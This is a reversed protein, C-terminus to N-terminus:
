EDMLYGFDKLVEKAEESFLFDYFGQVEMENDRERKILVIGQSILTYHEPDMAVWMGKNRMAQSMVTSMATFGIQAAKSTIFQNTQAISEGYVLKDKLSDYLGYYQLVQKAAVGYPATKPNALAIHNIQPEKLTNISIPSEHTLSWLVLKGNAYIKPLDKAKGAAYVAEPYKMNAAVFIDYPAGEVIQATLKGSSGIILDCDIGYTETYKKVIQEMPLQMNAAAAVTIKNPDKDQCGIGFWIATVLLFFSRIGKKM